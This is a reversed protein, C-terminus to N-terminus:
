LRDRDVYIDLRRIVFEVVATRQEKDLPALADVVKDMANIEQKITEGAPPKAASSHGFQNECQELVMTEGKQNLGPRTARVHAKYTAKTFDDGFEYDMAVRRGIQILSWGMEFASDNDSRSIFESVPVNSQHLRRGMRIFFAAASRRNQIQM